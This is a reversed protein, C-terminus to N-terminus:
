HQQDDDDYDDDDDDDDADADADDDDRVLFSMKESSPEKSTQSVWPNGVLRFFFDPEIRPDITPFNKKLVLDKFIHKEM